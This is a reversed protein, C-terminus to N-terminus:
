GRRGGAPPRARSGRRFLLWPGIAFAALSAVYVSGSVPDRGAFYAAPSLGRMWLVFTFEVLLMLGLALGGVALWQSGSTLERERRVLRRAALYVVALMLPSEALEALREGVRPVVVLTRVVGLVFGAGFVVAFYSFARGVIRSAIARAAAARAPPIM